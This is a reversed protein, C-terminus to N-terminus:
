QKVLVPTGIEAWNYFWAADATRLNVCGHSMPEGFNDHWYAAHFGYGEYFYMVYTVNPLYYGPGNMTQSDRKAYISFEGEVTPTQPLGTSVSVSKVARGNEYATATQTELQVVIEKRTYIPTDEDKWPRYGRVLYPTRIIPITLRQGVRLRDPNPLANITALEAWNVGYTYGIRMLTEGQQVYHGHGGTRPLDANNAQETPEPTPTPTSTPAPTPEPPLIGPRVTCLRAGGNFTGADTLKEVEGTEVHVLGIQVDDPGGVSALLHDSDFWSWAIDAGAAARVARPEPLEFDLLYISSTQPDELDDWRTYAIREGLGDFVPWVQNGESFETPLVPFEGEVDEDLITLFVDWPGTQEHAFLLQKGDPGWAPSADRGLQTTVQVPDTGDANMVWITPVGENRTSVFAIKRGDPSFVPAFNMGESDTLQFPTTQDFPLLFLQFSGLVDSAYVVASGDPACAPDRENAQTTMLAREDGNRTLLYLDDNGNRDSYFVIQYPQPLPTETPPIAARATATADLRVQATQTIPVIRAAATATLDAPDSTATPPLTPSLTPSPTSTPTVSSTPPATPTDTPADTSTATPPVTPLLAVASATQIADRTALDDLSAITPPPAADDDPGCGALVVLPVLIVGLVALLTGSRYLIPAM